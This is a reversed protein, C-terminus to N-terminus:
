NTTARRADDLVFYVDDALNLWPATSDERRHSPYTTKIELALAATLRDIEKLIAHIRQAKRPRPM